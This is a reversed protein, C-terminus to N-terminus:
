HGISFERRHFSSLDTLSLYFLAGHYFISKSAIKAFMLDAILRLRCFSLRRTCFRISRPAARVNTLFARIERSAPSASSARWAVNSATLTSSLAASFPVMWLFLAARRFLLNIFRRALSSFSFPQPQVTWRRPYIPTILLRMRNPHTNKWTEFRLM